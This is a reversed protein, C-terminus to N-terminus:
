KEQQLEKLYEELRDYTQTMGDVAGMEIVSELEKESDFKTASVVKCGTGEAFFDTTILMTPLGEVENEQEDSFTDVYVLRNPPEIERYVAKGWAEQGEPSRMCYHWVGGPEVEMKYVTTDWGTPGWWRAIHDAETFMSFVRERPAEFSRELILELGEVKSSVKNASM